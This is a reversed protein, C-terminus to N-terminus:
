KEINIIEIDPRCKDDVGCDIGKIKGTIFYTNNLYNTDGDNLVEFYKLIYDIRHCYWSSGMECDDPMKMGESTAWFWDCPENINIEKHNDDIVCFKIESAQTYYNSIKGQWKIIQGGYSSNYYNPTEQTTLSSSVVDSYYIEKSNYNNSLIFFLYLTSIFFITTFIIKKNLRNIIM